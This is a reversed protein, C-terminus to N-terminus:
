AWRRLTAASVWPQPEPGPEAASRSAIADASSRPACRFARLFRSGFPTSRPLSWGQHSRPRGAGPGATAARVHRAARGVPGAASRPNGRAEGTRKRQGRRALRVMHRPGGPWLPSIWSSAPGVPCKMWSVFGPTSPIHFCQRCFRSLGPALGRISVARRPAPGLFSRTAVSRIPRIPHDLALRRRAGSRAPESAQSRPACAAVGGDAAGTARDTTTSASRSSSKRCRGVM